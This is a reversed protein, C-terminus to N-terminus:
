DVAADGQKLTGLFTGLAEAEEEWLDFDKMATGPVVRQPDLLLALVYEPRRRSGIDDLAPGIQRGEGRLEHCGLCQYQEFLIRGKEVLSEAIAGASPSIGMSGLDTDIQGALFAALDVADSRLVTARPMRLDPLIGEARYRIPHPDLLYEVMWAGSARSGATSLPPPVNIGGTTRPESHCRICDLESFLSEGRRPDGPIGSVPPVPRMRGTSAGWPGPILVALTIVLALIVSAAARGPRNM